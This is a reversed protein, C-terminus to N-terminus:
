MHKTDFTVVITYLLFKYCHHGLPSHPIIIFQPEPSIIEGLFYQEGLTIPSLLTVSIKTRYFYGGPFSQLVPARLFKVFNMPYCGHQLRDRKRFNSAPLRCSKLFLSWCM